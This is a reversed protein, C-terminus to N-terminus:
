QRRQLEMTVWCSFKGKRHKQGPPAAYKIPLPYHKHNLPQPSYLLAVDQSTNAGGNEDDVVYIESIDEGDAFAKLEVKLSPIIGDNM